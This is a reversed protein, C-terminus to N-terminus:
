LFEAKKVVCEKIKSLSLIFLLPSLISDQPTGKYAFYKDNIIKDESSTYKNDQRYDFEGSQLLHEPM